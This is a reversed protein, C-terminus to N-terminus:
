NNLENNIINNESNNNNNNIENNENNNNELNSNNNENNNNKIYEWENILYNSKNLINSIKNLIYDININKNNLIFDLNINENNKKIYDKMNQEIIFKYHLKNDNNEKNSVIKSNDNDNNNNLINFFKNIFFNEFKLYFNENKNKGNLILNFIIKNLENDINDYNVIEKEINFEFSPKVNLKILFRKIEINKYKLEDEFKIVIKIFIEGIIQPFIPVFIMIKNEEDFLEKNFTIYDFLTTKIINNNDNNNNNNYKISDNFFITFKKIRHNKSNNIIEIPFLIFQYKYLNLEKGM